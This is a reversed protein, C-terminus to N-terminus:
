SDPPPQNPPVKPDTYEQKTRTADPDYNFGLHLFIKLM